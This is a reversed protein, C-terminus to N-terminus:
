KGKIRCPGCLFRRTWYSKKKALVNTAATGNKSLRQRTVIAFVCRSVSQHSPNIFHATSIQEPAMIYLYWTEYLSTWANFHQYSPICLCLCRPSPM